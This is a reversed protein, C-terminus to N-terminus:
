PSIWSRASLWGFGLVVVLLIYLVYVHLLGQQLWRLRAFRAAWRSFFPEYVGHTLPDSCDSSFSSLGPFPSQPRLAATPTRLFPPLLSEAFLESFSRATYQIRPTGAPYGCGWTM